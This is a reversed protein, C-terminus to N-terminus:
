KLLHKNREVLNMSIKHDCIRRNNIIGYEEFEKKLQSLEYDTTEPGFSVSIGREKSKISFSLAIREYPIEEDFVVVIRFEREYNWIPSKIFYHRNSKELEKYAEAFSKYEQDDEYKHECHGNRSIYYIWDFYVKYSSSSVEKKLPKFQKNVYSVKCNNIIGRIKANTFEIRCGKGDIGGYLYYSPINLSESNCLSLAFVRGNDKEHWEAEALDNMINYRSMFICESSLINRANEVSTYHCFRTNSKIKKIEM